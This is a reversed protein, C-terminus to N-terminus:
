LRRVRCRLSKLNPFGSIPDVDDTGTLENVNAQEWGQPIHVTDSRIRPTLNAKLTIRGNRTVVEVISDQLIGYRLATAPHIDVAPEPYMKRLRPIFRYQWHTYSLLNSGTTLILPFENASQLPGVPKEPIPSPDIGMARLPEPYIEVKGSPTNFGGKEYKRFSKEGYRYIGDSSVLDRYSIGLPSLLHDIGEASSQWPFFKALGMQTALKMWIMQDPLGWTPESVKRRLTIYPLNLYVNVRHEDRELFSCAPLVVDAYHSDPSRVVDIVMLFELKGLAERTNRSDPWELSPNGGSIIMGKIPYPKEELIARPLCLAHGEKRSRCFLPFREAGIPPLSPEPLPHTIDEIKPKQTFLDGGPVDLHGSIAKLVALLRTTNMGHAHHELGNGTFIGAPRIEAYTRAIGRVEKPSIGTSAEGTEPSFRDETVMRFFRNFGKVWKRVFMKDWREERCIVHLMNLILTDDSGPKVALRIDAKVATETKRPDIVILEGGRKKFRNLEEPVFPEHSILPNGGWIILYRANSIDPKTLGGFTLTEGMTRSANCLSGVSMLNPTGYVNAFRKIYFKIEQHGTGEGNYIALSQPGYRDRIASLKESAMDLAQDWDASILRGKSRILPATLRESSFYFDLAARGKACLWGKNFPHQKSGKLATPRGGTVTVEIGCGHDCMRCLTSVTRTKEVIERCGQKGSPIPSSLNVKLYM